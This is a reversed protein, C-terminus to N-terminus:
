SFQKSFDIVKEIIRPIINYKKEYSIKYIDIDKFINVVNNIIENRSRNPTFQIFHCNEIITQLKEIKSIKQIMVDSCYTSPALLFMYRIRYNKNSHIDSNLSMWYKDELNTVIDSEEVSINFRNALFKDIKIKLNKSSYCLIDENYIKIPLVDDTISKCGSELMYHQLTSKGTKSPAIFIIPNNNYDVSSAHIPLYGVTYMCISLAGGLAVNISMKSDVSNIDVFIEKTGISVAVFYLDLYRLIIYKDTEYAILPYYKLTLYSWNTCEYIEKKKAQTLKRYKIVNNMNQLKSNKYMECECAKIRFDSEIIFDYLYYYFM